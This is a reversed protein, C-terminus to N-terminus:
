IKPSLFIHLTYPNMIKLCPNPKMNLETDLKQTKRTEAHALVTPLVKLNFMKVLTKTMIFYFPFFVNAISSLNLISLKSASVCISIKM